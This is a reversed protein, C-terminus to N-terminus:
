ANSPNRRTRGHRAIAGNFAEVQYADAQDSRQGTAPAHGRVKRGGRMATLNLGVSGVRAPRVIEHPM